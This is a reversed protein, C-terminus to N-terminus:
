NKRMRKANRELTDVRQRTERLEEQLRRRDTEGQRFADIVNRLNGLNQARTNTYMLRINNMTLNRSSTNYNRPPPM